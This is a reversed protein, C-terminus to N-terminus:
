PVRYFEILVANLDHLNRTNRKWFTANFNRPLEDPEEIGGSNEKPITLLKNNTASISSARGKKKKKENVREGQGNESDFRLRIM